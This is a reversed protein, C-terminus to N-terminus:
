YGTPMDKKDRVEDLTGGNISRNRGKPKQTNIMGGVENVNSRRKKYRFARRRRRAGVSNSRLKKGREPGNKLGASGQQGRLVDKYCELLNDLASDGAIQPTLTTTM